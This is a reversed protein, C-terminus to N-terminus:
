SYTFTYKNCRQLSADAAMEAQMAAARNARPLLAARGRQLVERLVRAQQLSLASVAAIAVVAADEEADVTAATSAAMAAKAEAARCLCYSLCGSFLTNLSFTLDLHQVEFHFVYIFAM